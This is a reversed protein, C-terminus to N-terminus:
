DNYRFSGTDNNLRKKARNKQKNLRSKNDQKINRTRQEVQRLRQEQQRIERDYKKRDESKQKQLRTKNNQEVQNQRSHQTEIQRQIRTKEPDAFAHQSFVVVLALFIAFYRLM